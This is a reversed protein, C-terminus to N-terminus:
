FNKCQAPQGNTYGNQFAAVRQTSSGHTFSEPQAYGQAAKQIKDDGVASAASMAQDIEGPAFFNKNKLTYAWIGAYCDAQLEIQVSEANSPQVSDNGFVGLQAQVNHGVEHAIVYAQAVEGKSAGYRTHLEDFFTEDMYITTDAPCFHPGVDSAAIGCGSQTADRFLVLKPHQYTMNNRTFIADWTDNTSGLVKETFVQYGDEGQFEPAQTGSDAKGSLVQTTTLVQQVTDPSVQIGLFNLGLTILIALIGGGGALLGAGGMGRRDEVDGSSTIDNWNAM